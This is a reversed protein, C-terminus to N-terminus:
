GGVLTQFDETGYKDQYMKEVKKRYEPDAAMKLQGHENKAFQASQIEETSMVASPQANDVSVPANRTRSILQEIAQVGAATTAMGQLGAVNEESMNKNAWANINNIRAEANPGLAKMEGARQEALANDDAIESMVFMNALENLSDNSMNSNKAFELAQTMLGSELDLEGGAEKVADSLTVEYKDPAGTFAGFQTRLEGYAKAQEQTAEEISREGTMYKDTLLWDPANNNGEAVMGAVAEADSTGEQAAPVENNEETM